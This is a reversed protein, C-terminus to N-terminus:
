EGKVTALADKLDSILWVFRDADPFDVPLDACYEYFREAAAAAGRLAELESLMSRNENLLSRNAEGKREISTRLAANEAELQNVKVKEEELRTLFLDRDVRWEESQEQWKNRAKCVAFYAEATPRFWTEGDEDIYVENLEAQAAQLQSELAAIQGNLGKIFNENSEKCYEEITINKEGDKM